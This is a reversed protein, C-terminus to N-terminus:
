EELWASHGIEDLKFVADPIRSGSAAGVRDDLHSARHDNDVLRSRTFTRANPISAVIIEVFIRQVASKSHWKVISARSGACSSECAHFLATSAM